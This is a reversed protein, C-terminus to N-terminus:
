EALKELSTMLMEQRGIEILQENDQFLEKYKEQLSKILKDIENRIVSQKTYTQARDKAKDDYDNSFLEKTMRLRMTEELMIQDWLMDNQRVVFEFAMQSYDESDLGFLKDKVEIKFEGATNKQFGVIEAAKLQREEFRPIPEVNLISDKGTRATYCYL